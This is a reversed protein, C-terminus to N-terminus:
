MHGNGVCYSVCCGFNCSSGDPHPFFNVRYVVGWVMALHWGVIYKCYSNALSRTIASISCSSTKVSSWCFSHKSFFPWISCTFLVSLITPASCDAHQPHTPPQTSHFLPQSYSSITYNTSSTPECCICRVAQAPVTNRQLLQVIHVWSATYPFCTIILPSQLVSTTVCTKSTLLYTSHSDISTCRYCLPEAPKVGHSETECLWPGHPRRCGPSKHARPKFFLGVWNGLWIDYFTSFWARETRELM